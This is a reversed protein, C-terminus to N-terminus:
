KGFQVQGMGGSPKQLKRKMYWESHSFKHPFPCIPPKKGLFSALQEWKHEDRDKADLILLRDTKYFYALVDNHHNQVIERYDNYSIQKISFENQKKSMWMRCWSLAAEDPNRYTLVFKAKPYEEALEKWMMHIPYDIYADFKRVGQLCPKKKEWNDRLTDLVDTKGEYQGRGTHHVKYGLIELAAALSNSGTKGKGIGFVKAM